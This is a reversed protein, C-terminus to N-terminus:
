LWRRVQTFYTRYKDGFKQTMVAEEPKIQFYTIYSIFVPLLLFALFHSLELAGGLLIIALGLYMPNRTYHYIGSTVLYTSKEPTHPNVTTQAKKFETVGLMSIGLGIIVLGCALWTSGAFSFQWVPLVKSVGYMAIAIILVQLPPPIKLELSNM